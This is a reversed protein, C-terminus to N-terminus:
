FRGGIGFLFVDMQGNEKTIERSYSFKLDWDSFIPVILGARLDIFGDVKAQYKDSYRYSMDKEQYIFAGPAAAIFIIPSNNKTIPIAFGLSLFADFDMKLSGYQKNINSQLSGFKWDVGISLPGAIKFQFDICGLGGSNSGNYFGGSLFGGTFGGMFQDFRHKKAYEEGRKEEAIKKQKEEEQKQIELEKQKKEEEQKLILAQEKLEDLSMETYGNIKSYSQYSNKLNVAEDAKSKFMFNYCQPINGHRDEKGYIILIFDQNDNCSYFAPNANKDYFEQDIEIYNKKDFNYDQKIIRRANTLAELDDTAKTVISICFLSNYCYSFTIHEVPLENYKLGEKSYLEITIPFIEKSEDRGKLIYKENKLKQSVSEKSDGLKFGLINKTSQSFLFNNVFFLFAFFILIRNKMANSKM